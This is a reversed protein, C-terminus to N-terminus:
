KSPDRKSVYGGDESVIISGDVNASNERTNGEVEDLIEEDSTYFASDNQEPKTMTDGEVLMFDYDDPHFILDDIDTFEKPITPLTEIGEPAAAEEVQYEDDYVSSVSGSGRLAPQKFFMSKEGARMLDEEKKKETEIRLVKVVCWYYLGDM